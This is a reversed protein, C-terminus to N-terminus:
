SKKLQAGQKFIRTILTSPLVAPQFKFVVIMKRDKADEGMKEPVFVCLYVVHHLASGLTAYKLGTTKKAKVTELILPWNSGIFHM